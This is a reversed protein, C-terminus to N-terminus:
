GGGALRLQRGLEIARARTLRLSCEAGIVPAITGGSFADGESLCAAKRYAQWASQAAVLHARADASGAQLWLRRVERDVVADARLIRHEACGEAGVTTSPRCPLPTFVESVRPPGAAPSSSTSTTSTPAVAPSSSSSSGSCGAALLILLVVPWAGRM